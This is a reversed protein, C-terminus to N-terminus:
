RVVLVVIWVIIKRVIDSFDTHSITKKAFYNITPNPTKRNRLTQHMLYLHNNEVKTLKSPRSILEHEWYIGFLTKQNQTETFDTMM